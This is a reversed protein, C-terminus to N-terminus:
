RVVVKTGVRVRKYLDVVDENRMRICGSSVNHGVTWPEFTGHIRYQTDQGNKYLYLARAGLPNGPGGPMGGAWMAADPDENVMRATPTWTPWEAKRMVEVTDNWGFGSRAVGISYRMATGGDEVLYLFFNRSDVIITGPVEDTRYSVMQPSFRDGRVAVQEPRPTETSLRLTTAGAESFVPDHMCGGLALAMCLAFLLRM